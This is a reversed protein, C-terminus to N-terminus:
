VVSRETKHLKEWHENMENEPRSARWESLTPQQVPTLIGNREPSWINANYLSPSDLALDVLMRGLLPTFKFGRGAALIFMAANNPNLFGSRSAIRGLVMQGDPSMSYLCSQVENSGLQPISIIDNFRTQMFKTLDSLLAANPQWTIEWPNKFKTDTFDASCKVHGPIALEPFGYWLDRGGQDKNGFEYWLPHTSTAKYYGLTMQWITLDAQWGFHGLLGNVWAGPAMILYDVQRQCTPGDAMRFTLSFGENAAQDIDFVVAPTLIEVRGTAECLETFAAFSQSVDIIASNRQVLGVYDEPMTSANFVPFEREIAAPSNLEEFPVGLRQMTLKTSPIDGEVTRTGKKYGYFILPAPVLIERGTAVEIERWLAYAPEVLATENPDAYMIRFFRSSGASSAYTNHLGFQDVLFVDHGAASAYYAAAIGTTGGGIIGISAM